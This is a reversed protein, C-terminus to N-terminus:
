CFPNRVPFLRCLFDYYYMSFWLLPVVGQGGRHAAQKYLPGDRQCTCQARGTQSTMGTMMQVLNLKSFGQWQILLLFQETGRTNRCCLCQKVCWKMVAKDANVQKRFECTRHFVQQVTVLTEHLYLSYM